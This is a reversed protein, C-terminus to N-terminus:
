RKSVERFKLLDKYEIFAERLPVMDCYEMVTSMASIDAQINAEEAAAVPNLGGLLVMGIKNLDVPVECVPESTGGMFVLGQFGAENLGAVIEEAHTRCISPIERFNALVEGDGKSVVKGVSTMGAKIFITSPDLSCGAYDIIEAFRLPKHHRLQLIGGFRSNMPLGAKLFASNYIISCVTAIGIKGPPVYIDGLYEGESGIAVLDSICLGDEFTPKMAQLARSFDKSNFLSINVPILGSRKKLDFSTRYALTEIKSITFGVKDNVLASKVEDHGNDTLVRGDRRGALYTLGREDMLKLHYRVARESLEIGRDKLYHSVVRAGVPERSDSLIKMIALEKREVSQSEFAM